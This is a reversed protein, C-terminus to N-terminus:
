YVEDVWVDMQLMFTIKDSALLLLLLTEEEEGETEVQGRTKEYKIEQHSQIKGWFVFRCNIGRLTDTPPFETSGCRHDTVTSSESRM